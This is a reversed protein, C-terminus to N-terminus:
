CFLYFLRHPLLEVSCVWFISYPVALKRVMVSTSHWGFEVVLLIFIAVQTRIIRSPAITSRYVNKDGCCSFYLCM